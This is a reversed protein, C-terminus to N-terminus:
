VVCATARDKVRLAGVFLLGCAVIQVAHIARFVPTYHGDALHFAAKIQLWLAPRMYGSAVGGKAAAWWSQEQVQFLNALGDSRQVPIRVVFYALGLAVIVACLYALAPWWRNM